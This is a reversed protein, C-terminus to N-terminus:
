CAVVLGWGSHTVSQLVPVSDCGWGGTLDYKIERKRGMDVRGLPGGQTLAHSIRSDRWVSRPCSHSAAASM